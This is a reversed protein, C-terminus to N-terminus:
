PYMPASQLPLAVLREPITSAVVVPVGEKSMSRTKTPAIEEFCRDAASAAAVRQSRMMVCLM